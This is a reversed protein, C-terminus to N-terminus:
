EGEAAKVIRNYLGARARLEPTDLIIIHEVRDVDAQRFVAYVNQESILLVPFPRTDDPLVSYVVTHGRLMQPDLTIPDVLSIRADPAYHKYKMGPARPADDTDNAFVVPVGCTQEIVDATIVGPRLIVPADGTCDVVTSEIGVESAGGDFVGFVHSADTFDSLVHALTTSSPRTSINASPAAVPVGCARLFSRTGEHNPIRVGVTQGGATAKLSIRDTKQLVLTLPGPWLSFLKRAYDPIDQVVKEVEEVDSVHVILPNDSPRGKTVFIKQVAENSYANAGLGYVTETPFVVLDGRVLAAAANTIDESTFSLIRPTGMTDNCKSHIDVSQTWLKKKQLKLMAGGM